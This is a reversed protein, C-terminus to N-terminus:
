FFVVLMLHSFFNVAVYVAWFRNEVGAAAGVQPSRLSCTKMAILCVHGTLM